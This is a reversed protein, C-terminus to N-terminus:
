ASTETFEVDQNPALIPVDSYGLEELAMRHFVNYQGFRCPGSGSPMFFASEAPKFDSSLVRKLM